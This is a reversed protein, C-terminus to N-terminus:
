GRPYREMITAQMDLGSPNAAPTSLRLKEVYLGSAEVAKFFAIVEALAAGTVKVDIAMRQGKEERMQAPQLTTLRGSVFSRAVTEEILALSIARNETKRGGLRDAARKKTEYADKVQLTEFLEKRKARIKTELILTDQITFYTWAGTILFIGAFVLLFYKEPVTALRSGITM